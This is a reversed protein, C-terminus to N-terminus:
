VYIRQSLSIYIYVKTWRLSEIIKKSVSKGDLLFFVGNTKHNSVEYYTPDHLDKNNKALANKTIKNNNIKFNDAKQSTKFNKDLIFNSQNVTYGSYSYYPKVSEQAHAQTINFLEPTVFFGLVLSSALIFNSVKKM